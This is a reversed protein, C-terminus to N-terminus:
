ALDRRVCLTALVYLAVAIALTARYGISIALHVAIVAASAGALCNIAFFHPIKDRLGKGAAMRLGAPFYAGMFFGCTFILGVSVFKAVGASFGAEFLRHPMYLAAAVSFALMVAAVRLRILPSYLGGIASGLLLVGLVLIFSYTASVFVNQYVQMFVIEILFFAFGILVNYANLRVAARAAPTFLLGISLVFWPVLAATTSYTIFRRLRRFGKRSAYPFPRDNTVPRPDYNELTELYAFIGSRMMSFLHSPIVSEKFGKLYLLNKYERSDFQGCREIWEVVKKRREGAIPQKSVIFSYYHGDGYREIQAEKSGMWEWIVFHASPDEAGRQVLCQWLTNLERYFALEGNRDYPREELLLYGGDTLRDFYLHYNEITHVYDPPGPHALTRASHCNLLTIIDFRRDTNRLISVANGVVPTLGEYARGSREFFDVTMARVIAPNIELPLINEPPTIRKVAKVIGEAASGIICVRPEPVLGYLVRIDKSPWRRKRKKYYEYTRHRSHAFKDNAYGDYIVHYRDLPQLRDVTQTTKYDYRTTSTSKQIDIRGQLNDYTKVHTRATDLVTFQKLGNLDFIGTECTRALINHMNHADHLPLTYVRANVLVCALFLPLCITRVTRNRGRLAAIAGTVALTHLLVLFIGESPLIRYLLVVALVGLSAGLMDYLYVRNSAHDRFVRSIYLVPFFFCLAACSGSLWLLPYRLTLASCAYMSLLTGLCSLPFLVNESLRVGGAFWAGLGTGLLAFSIVLTAAHYDFVYNLVHFFLTEEVLVFAALFAVRLFRSRNGPASNGAITANVM